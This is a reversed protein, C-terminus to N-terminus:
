RLHVLNRSKDPKLVSGILRLIFAQAHQERELANSTDDLYSCNDELWKMEIRSGFFKDLVKSLLQECINSWDGVVVSGTVASGDVSLDLQLAVGKLTITCEGCPLDFTYTEPRWREVLTSILTPDM